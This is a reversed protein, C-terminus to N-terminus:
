NRGLLSLNMRVPKEPKSLTCGVLIQPLSIVRVAVALLGAAGHSATTGNNDWLVVQLDPLAVAGDWLVAIVLALM